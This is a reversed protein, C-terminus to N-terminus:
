KRMKKCGEVSGGGWPFYTTVVAGEECTSTAVFAKYHVKPGPTMCEFKNAVIGLMGAVPAAVCDDPCSSEASVISTPCPTLMPPPPSLSTSFTTYTYATATRTANALPSATIPSTLLALFALTTSTSSPRM